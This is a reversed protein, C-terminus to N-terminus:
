YGLMQLVQPKLQEKKMCQKKSCTQANCNGTNKNIWDLVEEVNAYIGATGCPSSGKSVVGVLKLESTSPDLWVLPGGSDGQCSDKGGGPVAACIQDPGDAHQKYPCESLPNFNVSVVQLKNPISKIMQVDGVATPDTVGWGSLTFKTEKNYKALDGVSPLYVAHAEPRIKIADELELITFDYNNNKPFNPKKDNDPNTANPHTIIRKVSHVKKGPPNGELNQTGEVVKIGGINKGKFKLKDEYDAVCHFATLIYKPCIITGGCGAGALYVQWSYANKEAPKGGIIRARSKELGQEGLLGSNPMTLNFKINGQVLVTKGSGTLDATLKATGGPGELHEEMSEKEMPLGFSARTSIFQALMLSLVHLNMTGM